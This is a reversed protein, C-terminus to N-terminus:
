QSLSCASVLLCCFLHHQQGDLDEVCLERQLILPLLVPAVLISSTSASSYFCSSSCCFCVSTMQLQSSMVDPSSSLFVELSGEAHFLNALANVLPDFFFVSSSDGRCVSRQLQSSWPSEWLGEARPRNTFIRMKGTQWGVTLAIYCSFM